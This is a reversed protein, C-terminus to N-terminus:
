KTRQKKTAPATTTEHQPYQDAAFIPGYRVMHFLETACKKKKKSEQLALGYVFNMKHYVKWSNNYVKELMFPWLAANSPWTGAIGEDTFSRNMLNNRLAGEIDPDYQDGLMGGLNSITDFTNLLLLIASKEVVSDIEKLRSKTFECESSVIIGKSFIPNDYLDLRKLKTNFVSGLERIKKEVGRLSKIDCRFLDLNRLNPFRPSVEFLLTEFGDDDVGASDYFSLTTLSQCFKLESDQLSSIIKNLKDKDLGQLNLEELGNPLANFFPVLSNPIDSGGEVCLCKLHPLQLGVPINDFLNRDCDVFTIETLCPLDGLELPIQQCGSIKITQLKQLSSISPPLNYPRIGNEDIEHPQLNFPRIGDEDNEHEILPVALYTIRGFCDVNISEVDNFKFQYECPLLPDYDEILRPDYDEVLRQQEESSDLLKLEERYQRERFYSHLWGIDYLMTLVVCGDSYDVALPILHMEEMVCRRREEEEEEEERNMM